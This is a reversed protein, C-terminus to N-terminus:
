HSTGPVTHRHSAAPSRHCYHGKGPTSSQDRMSKFAACASVKPLHSKHTERLGPRQQSGDLRYLYRDSEKLQILLCVLSFPKMWCRYHVAFLTHSMATAIPIMGEEAIPPPYGHPYQKICRDLSQVSRTGAALGRLTVDVPSLHLLVQVAAISVM